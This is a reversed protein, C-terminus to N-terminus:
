IQSTRRAANHYAFITHNNKLKIKSHSNHFQLPNVDHSQFPQHTDENSFPSNCLNKKWNKTRNHILKIYNYM